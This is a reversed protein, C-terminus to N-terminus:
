IYAVLKFCSIMNDVLVTSKNAYVDVLVLSMKGREGEVCGGAEKM